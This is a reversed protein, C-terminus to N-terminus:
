RAGTYMKRVTWYAQKPKRYENVIGKNNFSRPRGLELERATRVDCYQWIYTGIIDPDNLFLNLTYELYKEQYNESWKQQEFTSEGYLAGAGFESIIMPKGSLGENQMKAKFDRLFSEWQEVEGSYWGFYLNISIIDVFPLCIDDLPHMTAYTIPRTPDLSRIEAAFAKTVDLAAKTRSDIENHLGWIIISPHHYDRKIMQEHMALGRKLTLPDKLAHEPFGWMPIEEWFLIGEQDLLDLFIPANPYHSGRIANCGLNKIIDLDKKMLKLPVAFGWDPHDEHRNIGKLKIERNNLLLKGDQVTITRFGIRETLDDNELELRIQYLNPNAPEWLRVNPVLLDTITISHVDGANGQFSVTRAALLQEDLYVKLEERSVSFNQIAVHLDLHATAQAIDLRYDIRCDKIWADELEMLEVSRFLGGYHFWDVRALPITNRDNHSNDTFVVLNHKGPALGKVLCQYGAFGGYQSGVEKGDVYVRILGYFGHFVLNARSKTTEFERQYWAGGEYHYLGLETNWCGPVLVARSDKPFDAYWKESEGARDPDIKFRWFGNLSTVKRKHHSKFLRTM